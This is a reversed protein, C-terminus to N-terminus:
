HHPRVARRGGLEYELYWALHATIGLVSGATGRLSDILASM